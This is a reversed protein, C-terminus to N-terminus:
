FSVPVSPNVTANRICVKLVIGYISKVGEDAPM